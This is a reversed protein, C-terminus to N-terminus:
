ESINNVFPNLPSKIFEVTLLSFNLIICPEDLSPLIAKQRTDKKDLGKRVSQFHVSKTPFSPCHVFCLFFASSYIVSVIKRGHSQEAYM